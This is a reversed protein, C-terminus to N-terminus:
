EGIGSVNVDVRPISPADDTIVVRAGLVGTTTPAFRVRFVCSDGPDLSAATCTDTTITFQHPNQGVLRLEDVGLPETGVNRLRFLHTVSGGVPVRGFGPEGFVVPWAASEGTGTMPLTQPSDAADDLIAVTARKAGPSRPGFRGHFTCTKGPKVAVRTCTDGSIAFDVADPGTVAIQVVHLDSTGVNRVTVRGRDAPSLTGIPRPAFDLRLGHARELQVVPAASASAAGALGGLLALALLM